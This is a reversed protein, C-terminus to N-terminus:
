LCVCPGGSDDCTGGCITCASGEACAGATCVGNTCTDPRTCVNGDCSANGNPKFQCSTACCSNSTGNDPGDDCDEGADLTGNGCCPLIGCDSTGFTFDDAFIFKQDEVVGETEIIEVTSFGRTDIVGFFRHASTVQPDNFDIAVPPLLESTIVFQVQAGPTNSRLWGGVGVLTGAATAAWGDRLPDFPGGTPDGHPISFVGWFGTRAPGSGTTIGGSANNSSWTIGSSSVAPVTNPSRALGWVADDEFGEQFSGYGLEQLKTVYDSEIWCTLLPLTGTCGSVALTVTAENSALAGDVVRYRFSDTGSFGASPTYTFSGDTSLTLTGDNVDSTVEAVATPPLDEGNGDTDNELVGPAEVVLTQGTPADYSDDVALPPQAHASGIIGLFVWGAISLTLATPNKM